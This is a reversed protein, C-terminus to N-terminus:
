QQPCPVTPVQARANVRWITELTTVPACGSPRDDTGTKRTAYTYLAFCGWVASLLHHQGDKPCYDEGRWWAWLHRNIAAFLRGWGMGKEWNRADYKQAGLAYLRALGDLVEPPILDYRPKDDDHKTAEDPSATLAFSHEKRQRASTKEMAAERLAEEGLTCEPCTNRMPFARAQSSPSRALEEWLNPTEM